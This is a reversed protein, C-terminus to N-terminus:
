VGIMVDKNDSELSRWSVIVTTTFQTVKYGKRELDDIVISSLKEEFSLSVMLKGESIARNIGRNVLAKQNRVLNKSAKKFAQSAKM